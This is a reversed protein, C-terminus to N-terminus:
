QTLNFAYQLHPLVLTDTDSNFNFIRVDGNDTGVTGEFEIRDAVQDVGDISITGFEDAARSGLSITRVASISSKVAGPGASSGARFSNNGGASMDITAVGGVGRGLETLPDEANPDAASYGVFSDGGSGTIM